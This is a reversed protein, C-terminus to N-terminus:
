NKCFIEKLVFEEGNYRAILVSAYHGRGIKRVKKTELITHSDVGTLCRNNQIFPIEFAM